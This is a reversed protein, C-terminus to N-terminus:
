KTPLRNPRPPSRSEFDFHMFDQRDHEWEGGWLFNQQKLAHILECPLTLFGSEFAEVSGTTQRKQIAERLINIDNVYNSHYVTEADGMGTREIKDLQREAALAESVWKAFRESANKLEVCRVDPPMGSRNQAAFNIDARRQIVKSAEGDILPNFYANVDIAYGLAHNSLQQTRAVRRPQLGIVEIQIDLKGPSKKKLEALAKSARKLPEVLRKAVGHQVPIGMLTAEEPSAIVKDSYLAAPDTYGANWLLARIVLYSKEGTSFPPTITPPMAVGGASTDTVANDPATAVFANQVYQPFGKFEGRVKYLFGIKQQGIARLLSHVDAAWTIYRAHFPVPVQYQWPDGGRQSIVARAVDGVDKGSALENDVEGREEATLPGFLPRLVLQGASVARAAARFVEEDNRAAGPAIGLGERTLFARLKAVDTLGHLVASAEDFNHVCDPSKLSVARRLTYTRGHHRLAIAPEVKASPARSKRTPKALSMLAEQPKHRESRDDVRTRAM